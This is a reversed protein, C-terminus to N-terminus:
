FFKVGQDDDSLILECKREDELVRLVKILVDTHLGHFEEDQTDGQNIEFLTMVTNQLGNNCIYEYIISAWEERTHWYVEWRNKGKDIAEANGTKQLESLISVIVTSDLKRNITTNNFLPLQHAERVDIICMRNQKCYELILSKWAAVQKERTEPHPQLTFFPPFSYQWPWDVETDAM